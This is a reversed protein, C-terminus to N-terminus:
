FCTNINLTVYLSYMERHSTNRHSSMCTMPSVFLSYLLSTSVCEANFVSQRGLERVSAQLPANWGRTCCIHKCGGLAEAYKNGCCLDACIYKCVCVKMCMCTCTFVCVCVCGCEHMYVCICTFMCVRLGVWLCM